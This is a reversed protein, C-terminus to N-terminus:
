VCWLLGFNWSTVIIPEKIPEDVEFRLGSSSAECTKLRKMLMFTQFMAVGLHAFINGECIPKWKVGMCTVKPSFYILFVKFMNIQEILM